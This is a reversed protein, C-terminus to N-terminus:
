PAEKQSKPFFTDLPPRTPPEKARFPPLIEKIVEDTTHRHLEKRPQAKKWCIGNKFDGYPRAESCPNRGQWENHLDYRDHEERIKDLVSVMAGEVPNGSKPLEVRDM